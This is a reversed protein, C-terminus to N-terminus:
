ALSMLGSFLATSTWPRSNGLNVSCTGMCVVASYMSVRVGFHHIYKCMMCELVRGLGWLCKGTCSWIHKGYNSRETWVAWCGLWLACCSLLLLLSTRSLPIINLITNWDHATVDLARYSKRADYGCCRPRWHGACRGTAIIFIECRFHRVSVHSWVGVEEDRLLYILKWRGCIRIESVRLGRNVTRSRGAGEPSIRVGSSAKGDGDEEWHHPELFLGHETDILFAHIM